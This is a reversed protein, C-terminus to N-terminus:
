RKKFVNNINDSSPKLDRYTSRYELPTVNTEKKFVNYFSQINAYGLSDSIENIWVDTNILLYKAREMKKDDIYHKLSIGLKNKFMTSLYKENYGFNKAIDRVKLETSINDGVFQEISRLFEDKVIENEPVLLQNAIEYLISTTLLGNSVKNMYKIDSDILQKMLEFIKDKYKLHGMKKIKLVEHRDTYTDKEDNGIYYGYNNPGFHLWYFSCFAEKYGAQLKTPEMLIYDGENLTYEQWEDKIYLEGKIVIILEFDTLARTLHMYNDDTATFQGAWHYNLAKTVNFVFDRKEENTKGAIM